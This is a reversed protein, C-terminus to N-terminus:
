PCTGSSPVSSPLRPRAGPRGAAAREKRFLRKFLPGPDAGPRAPSKLAALGASAMRHQPEIELVRQLMAAARAPLGRAHYLEALALCADISRPHESLVNQLATEARKVWKPNRAQARAMLVRARVRELGGLQPLIEEVARIADWFRGAEFHAEAEPLRGGALWSHHADSEAPAAPPPAPAEVPAPKTGGREDLRAVYLRRLEPKSLTELAEVLRAFVAERLPRLDSLSPDLTSDPHFTRALRLYAEKVQGESSRQSVGLLQFHDKGALGEHTERILARLAESKRKEESEREAARRLEERRKRERALDQGAQSAATPHVPKPRAAQYEVVGTALLSFLSHEVSEAPLPILQLVERATLRGDIRSLLFGDAPTLQIHRFRAAADRSVALVRDLSGLMARVEGPDQVRRAAELILEVISLNSPSSRDPRTDPGSEEFSFKGPRSSAEFLIERAHLGVAEQLRQEDLLGMERLLKGVQRREALAVAVARDLDRQELRGYRVLIDGLHEGPADSTGHLVEGSSCLLSRRARGDDFHLHGSKRGAEIERLV